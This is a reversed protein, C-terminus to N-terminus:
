YLYKINLIRNFKLILNSLTKSISYKCTNSLTCFSFFYCAFHFFYKENKISFVLYM